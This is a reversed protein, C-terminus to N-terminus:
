EVLDVVRVDLVEPADPQRMQALRPESRLVGGLALRELVLAHDVHRGALVVDEGDAGVGALNEPLVLRVEVLRDRDDAAAPLAAPDREALPLDVDPLEVPREDGEILLGTLDGPLRLHRAPLVAVRDGCRREVDVAHDDGADGAALEARAAADGGVVRRRPLLLPAEVRDGARTLGAVVRPRLRVVGPLGAAGGDPLRRRHIRLEPRQVERRAVCTGSLLPLERAPLFRNVADITASSTCVPFSLHHYWITCWSM